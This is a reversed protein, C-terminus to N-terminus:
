QIITINGAASVAVERERGNPNILFVSGSVPNGGNDITFGNSLFGM